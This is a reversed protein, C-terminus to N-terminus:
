DIYFLIDDLERSLERAKELADEGLFAKIDEMLNVIDDTDDAPADPLKAEARDLIDRIDQPMSTTQVGLAGESKWLEAVKSQSAGLEEASGDSFANEITVQLSKGSNKEVAEITLIGNVDLDYRMTVPSGEPEKGSLLFHYDGIVLNRTADKDEGQYVMVDVAKQSDHVTYFVETKSAPLKTNRRIIPVYMDCSPIGNVTGMASTGFTYPTIDILVASTEVGMERAAQIGAGIGVCLDPDIEGHPEKSFKEYLLNSVLPMRTSGGVLVIREIASPLMRADKLAQSVSDMTKLIDEYILEEFVGRELTFSFHVPRGNKEGIHDVDVQAYPSSTLAIKAKEAEMTLRAMAIRNDMVNLGHDLEITEAFYEALKRDFDDGGLHNDGTSALVEVVSDQITVISVDFTGGGLDYVLITKGSDANKEYALAAATPENIIRIVELGAITGAERTAKRQADTFYAPVTIVAKRVPLGIQREVRQKLTKLIFASIEQPSYDTGNLSVRQDSGMLRKVSLVTRDPAVLAQNKAEQGVILNGDPDIGVCSPLIGRDNDTIIEPKGDILCAIESNTTGLDIGVIIDM